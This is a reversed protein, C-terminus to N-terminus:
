LPGPAPGPTVGARPEDDAFVPRFGHDGAMWYRIGHSAPRGSSEAPWPALRRHVLGAVARGVDSTGAPEAGPPALDPTWPGHELVEDVADEVAQAEREMGFAYRLMMAASLVAGLPNCIGHGAIDPASGHVPEFIGPEGEGGLSASPLVGLSGVVAAGLDSLLDGFTNETVVVDFRAPDRVFQLFGNDVYYLEVDVDDYEGAVEATLRRWLRSTELVNSKDFEALRRRRRRALDFGLRVIREVEADTYVLTDYARVGAGDRRSGREGYYLGGTLERVILVDVGAALVEDRLPSHWRLGRGLRVPRLNAFVGLSERLRLLGAEPRRPAPEDDWRPGGVAGLLVADSERCARETSAPLPDGELEVAAGGFPAEEFEFVAGTAQSVANLVRVAEATVEPGIGDGPLVAIRRRAPGARDERETLRSM